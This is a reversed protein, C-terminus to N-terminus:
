NPNNNAIYPFDYFEITGFWWASIYKKFNMNWVVVGYNYNISHFTMFNWAELGGVLGNNDLTNVM